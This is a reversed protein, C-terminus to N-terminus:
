WVIKYRERVTNHPACIFGQQNLFIILNGREQASCDQLSIYCETQGKKACEIIQNNLNDLFRQKATNEYEKVMERAVTASVFKM